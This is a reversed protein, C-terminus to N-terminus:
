KATVCNICQPDIFLFASSGDNRFTGKIAVTKGTQAVQYVDQVGNMYITGSSTVFAPGIAPMYPVNSNTAPLATMTVVGQVIVIKGDLEVRQM